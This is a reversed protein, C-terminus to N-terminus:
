THPTGDLHYYQVGSEYTLSFAEVFIQRDTKGAVSGTAFHPKDFDKPNKEEFFIRFTGDNMIYATRGIFNSITKVAKADPNVQVAVQNM